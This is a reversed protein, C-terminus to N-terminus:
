PLTVLLRPDIGAPKTDTLTGAIKGNVDIWHYNAANDVKLERGTAPDVADALGLMANSWKRMSESTSRQRLEFSSKSMKAIESQTQSVIGSVKMTLGQQMQLWQPNWQFSQLGHRLAEEAQQEAAPSSTYGYLQDVVWIGNNGMQTTLLTTAFYYGNVPQGGRRCTFAVDGASLQVHMGMQRFQAYQANIAAFDRTRDQQGTFQLDTCGQAVKTQVHWQVFAAGPMHRRVLMRVGYGPSYWSGERFGAFELMQNPLTFTPLEADGGTV